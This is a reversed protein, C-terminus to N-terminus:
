QLYWFEVKFILYWSFERGFSSPCPFYNKLSYSQMVRTETVLGCFLLVIGLGSAKPFESQNLANQSQRVIVSVTPIETHIYNAFVNEAVRNALKFTLKLFYILGINVESMFM